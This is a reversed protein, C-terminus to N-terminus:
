KRGNDGYSYSYGYEDGYGSEKFDFKTLTVGLIRAGAVQLRSIATRIQNTKTMRAECVFVVADANIALLVADALGLLPPGDIVVLDYMQRAQHLTASLNAGSLLEAPNPPMPGCPIFDLNPASTKVIVDELSSMGALVNAFGNTSALGLVRHLSPKRLDGDILLVRKDIRGFDQAVAFASTSKGESPRTSAFLLIQHQQNSTALQISTRLSYYAESVPSRHDHLAAEVTAGTKAVPISNLFPVGLKESVDAPTRIVDVLKERIFATMAAIILGLFAAIALNVALRPSYPTTPREATDIITINNSLLGAAATLEKYRQLLGDYLARNTDAERRLITYQVGRDQENLTDEKLSALRQTLADEQRQATEYQNRLSNRIVNALSAIQRDLEDLQAKAQRMTPFDPKRRELELDYNARLEAQRQSLEQITANSLV